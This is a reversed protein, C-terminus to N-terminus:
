NSHLEAVTSSNKIADGYSLYLGYVRCLVLNCTMCWVYVPILHNTTSRMPALSLSRQKWDRSLIPKYQFLTASNSKLDTLLCMLYFFCCAKARIYGQDSIVQVHFDNKTVSYLRRNVGSLGISLAGFVLSSGPLLLLWRQQLQLFWMLIEGPSPWHVWGGRKKGMLIMFVNLNSLDSLDDLGVM